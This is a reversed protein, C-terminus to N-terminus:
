FPSEGDAWRIEVSLEDSTVQDPYLIFSDVEPDEIMILTELYDVSRWTEPVYHLTLPGEQYLPKGAKNLAILTASVESGRFRLGLMRQSFADVSVAGIRFYWAQRNGERTYFPRFRVPNFLELSRYATLPKGFQDAYAECCASQTVKVPLRFPPALIHDASIATRSQKAAATAEQEAEQDYTQSQIRGEGDMWIYFPPNEADYDEIKQDVQEETLYVNSDGPPSVPVPKMSPEDTEPVSTDPNDQQIPTNHIRGEADTWTYYKEEDAM